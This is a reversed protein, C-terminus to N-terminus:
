QRVNLVNKSEAREKQAIDLKTELMHMHVDYLVFILKWFVFDHRERIDSVNLIM